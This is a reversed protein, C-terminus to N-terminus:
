AFDGPAGFRQELERYFSLDIYVQRDGPCYFPGVAASQFGCASAVRDSFLVLRPVQYREGAAAFLDNWVEETDRLVVSVMQAQADDEPPLGGRAGTNAQDVRVESLGGLLQIPDAGTLYSVVLVLVLGGVGIGGGMRVGPGM